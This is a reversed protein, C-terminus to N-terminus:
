KKATRKKPTPKDESKELKSMVWKHGDQNLARKDAKSTAAAYKKASKEKWQAWLEKYEPSNFTVRRAAAAKANEAFKERARLQAESPAKKEAAKKAKKKAPAQNEEIAALVAKVIANITAENMTANKM